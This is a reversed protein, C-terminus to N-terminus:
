YEYALSTASLKIIKIAIPVVNSISGIEEFFPLVDNTSARNVAVDALQTVPRTINSM